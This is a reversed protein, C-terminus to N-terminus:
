RTFGPCRQGTHTGSPPDWTGESVTEARLSRLADAHLGSHPTPCTRPGETRVAGWFRQRDTGGDPGPHPGVVRLSSSSGM